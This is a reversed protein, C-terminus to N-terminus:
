IQMTIGEKDMSSLRDGAVDSLQHAVREIMPLHEISHKERIEKPILGTIGPFTVHEEMTVIRM